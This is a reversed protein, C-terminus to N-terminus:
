RPGKTKEEKGKGIKLVEEKFLAKKCHQIKMWGVRRGPVWEEPANWHCLGKRDGEEPGV